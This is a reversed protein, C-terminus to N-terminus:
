EAPQFYEAILNDLNQTSHQRLIDFFSASTAMGHVNRSAYDHLFGFFAEDGMINRLDDLFRAGNLYVADRYARFSDYDYITGNVWGSPEYYDVRYSQWWDSLAEGSDDPQTPYIKQYFIKEMYTCLSEDLWPELAQDNGVLGYWWQHATEHAAIFTLYGKPTGDYLNYFGHSLFILGDYEMGDLFDAEVISLSPHPYPMFLTSYLSLADMTNQLVEQGGSTDYPFSYSNITVGNIMATQVTYSNSASLAFTRASGLHYTYIEGNQEGLASAAIQLDKVPESLTLRVDFDAVDFVQHEGFVWAPHALWGEGSRYAAIYPYWDVLNTQRVSYGYPLARQDSTADIIPPIVLQYDIKLGLQEGPLLPQRLSIHLQDKELLYDQITEGDKWNLSDLAFGGQWRNPEIMLVLNDLSDLTRNSYNIIESVSLSHIYFNFVAELQYHTGTHVTSTPLPTSTMSTAPPTATAIPQVVNPAMSPTLTPLLNDLAWSTTSSSPSIHNIYQTPYACGCLSLLCLLTIATIANLQKRTM